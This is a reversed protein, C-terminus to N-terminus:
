SGCRSGGTAVPRPAEAHHHLPQAWARPGLLAGAVAASCPRALGGRRRAPVDGDPARGPMARFDRMSRALASLAQDFAGRHARRAARSLRRGPERTVMFAWDSSQLALLERAAREADPLAAAPLPGAGARVGPAARGDAAARRHRAVAPSDWTRLDKRTAGPPTVLQRPRSTASSRRRCRRSRSARERAEELVPELWRLGEYWWHGLLETDVAFVILGPRGRAERYDALRAAVSAVFERAHEGARAGRRARTTPRAATAWARM